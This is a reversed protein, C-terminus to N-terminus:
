SSGRDYFEKRPRQRFGNKQKPNQSNKKGILILGVLLFLGIGCVGIEQPAQLISRSLGVFPSLAVRTMFKLCEHASIIDALAPSLRYYVKVLIRGPLHTLLFRDRFDRLTSVEEALSSGYAATAIFCGGGGGGGSSSVSGDSTSINNSTSLSTVVAPTPNSTGQKVGEAALTSNLGSLGLIL